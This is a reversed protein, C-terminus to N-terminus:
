DAVIQGFVFIIASFGFPVISWLLSVFLAVIIGIIFFLGGILRANQNRIEKTYKPPAKAEAKRAPTINVGFEEAIVAWLSQGLYELARTSHGNEIIEFDVTVVGKEALSKIEEKSEYPGQRNGTADIYFIEM